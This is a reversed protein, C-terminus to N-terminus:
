KFVCNLDPNSVCYKKIAWRPIEFSKEKNVTYKGKGIRDIYNSFREGRKRASIAYMMSGLSFVIIQMLKGEKNMVRYETVTTEQNAGDIPSVDESGSKRAKTNRYDPIGFEYLNNGGWPKEEAWVTGFCLILLFVLLINKM